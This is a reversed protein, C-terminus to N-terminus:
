FIIAKSLKITVEGIENISLQSAPATGSYDTAITNKV